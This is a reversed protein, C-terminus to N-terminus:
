FCLGEDASGLSVNVSSFGFFANANDRNVPIVDYRYVSDSSPTEDYLSTGNTFGIYTGNRRIEYGDIAFTTARDWVLELATSGYVLAEM